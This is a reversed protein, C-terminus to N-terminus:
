ADSFNQWDHSWVDTQRDTQRDAGCPFCHLIDWKRAVPAQLRYNVGMNHDITVQWFLTDESWFWMVMDYVWPGVWRPLMNKKYSEQQGTILKWNIVPELKHEETLGWFDYPGGRFNLISQSNRQLWELNMTQNFYIICASVPAKSNARTLDLLLWLKQNNISEGVHLCGNIFNDGTYLNCQINLANM